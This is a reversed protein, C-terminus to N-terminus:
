TNKYFDGKEDKYVKLAADAQAQLVKWDKRAKQIAQEKSSVQIKISHSILGLREAVFFFVNLSRVSKRKQLRYMRKALNKRSNLSTLKSLDPTIELSQVQHGGVTVRYGKEEVLTNIINVTKQFNSELQGKGTQTRVTEVLEM